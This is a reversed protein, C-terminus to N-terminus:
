EKRDTEAIKRRTIIMKIEKLQIEAKIRNQKQTERGQTSPFFM